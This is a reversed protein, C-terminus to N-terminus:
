MLKGKPPMAMTTMKKRSWTGSLSVVFSGRTFFSRCSSPSPVAARSGPVTQRSNASWHPPMVCGTLLEDKQRQTACSVHRLPVITADNGKQDQGTNEENGEDQDLDEFGIRSGDRGTNNRLAADEGAEPSGQADSRLHHDETLLQKGGGASGIHM